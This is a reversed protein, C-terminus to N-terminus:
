RGKPRATPKAPAPAPRVLRTTSFVPKAKDDDARLVSASAKAVKPAAAAPVQVTRIVPAPKPLPKPSVVPKKPPVPSPVPKTPPPTATPAAIGMAAALTQVDMATAAPAPAAGTGPVSKDYAKALVLLDDFNVTGDGTFDGQAFTADTKNYNKAVVLLDDFNVVRDRTADGALLFFDVTYGGALPNGAKDTVAGAALTMRYNGDPLSIGAATTVTLVGTDADLSVSLSGASVIQGTDDNKVRFGDASPLGALAENFRFTVRPGAGLPAFRATTVVPPADDTIRWLERGLEPTEAGFLAATGIGTVLGPRSSGTGPVVDGVIETGGATGNTRWLEIGADPTEMWWYLYGQARGLVAGGSHTDFAYGPAFATLPYTGDATGDTRWLQSKSVGAPAPTEGVYIMVGGVPGLPHALFNVVSFGRGTGPNTDAVLTTGAVTGDTKWWERGHVGDDATFLLEDGVVTLDWPTSAASGPNIDMFRFTGDPTGDSVWLERDGGPTSAAFFLRGRFATLYEPNTGSTGPIIDKVKYTGAPTGDTTWLEPDPGTWDPRIFLRGGAEAFNQVPMWSMNPRLDALQVTGADTGDTRFLHPQNAADWGYFYLLGNSETFSWPNNRDFLIGNGPGPNVEHVLVTGAATGDTRWLERGATATTAAFYLYRGGPYMMQITTGATGPSM